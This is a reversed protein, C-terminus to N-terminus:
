TFYYKKRTKKTKRRRNGAVFTQKKTRFMFKEALSVSCSVEKRVNLIKANLPPSEGHKLQINKIVVQSVNTEVVDFILDWMNKHFFLDLPEQYFKNLCQPIKTLSSYQNPQDIKNCLRLLFQQMIDSHAVVYIIQSEDKIKTKIWDTFLVIGDQGYYNVYKPTSPHLRFPIIMEEISRSHIIPAETDKFFGGASQKRRSKRGGAFSYCQLPSNNDQNNTNLVNQFTELLYAEDPKLNFDLTNNEKKKEMDQYHLEMKVARLNLSSTYYSLSLGRKKPFLYFSLNEFLPFSIIITQRRLLIKQLRDKALDYKTSSPVNINKLVEFFDYFANLQHQIKNLPLNGTDARNAHYEKLYPSVVLEFDKTEDSYPLYKLIATLWTRLLCSVYVKNINQGVVRKTTMLGTIIGWLPLTPEAVKNFIYMSGFAKDILNNCSFLHRSIHFTQSM